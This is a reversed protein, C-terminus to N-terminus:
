QISVFQMPDPYLEQLVKKDEDLGAYGDLDKLDNELFKYYLDRQVAQVHLHPFWGGNVSSEGVLGLFAGPKLFEGHRVGRAVKKSLHAYILVTSIGKLLVIVRTGWGHKEPSDNDVKLVTAERDLAVITGAPVNFDVGLHRFKEGDEMYCGRWLFSRDEMYGGYSFPKHIRRNCYKVMLDCTEPDLLVNQGDVGKSQSWKKSMENLNVLGMSDSPLTPFLM